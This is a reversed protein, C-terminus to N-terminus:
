NEFVPNNQVYKQSIQIIGKFMVKLFKLYKLITETEFDKLIFDM